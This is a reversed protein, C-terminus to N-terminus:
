MDDMNMKDMCVQNPSHQKFCYSIRVKIGIVFDKESKCFVVNKLNCM